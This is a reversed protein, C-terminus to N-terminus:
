FLRPHKSTWMFGGCCLSGSLYHSFLSCCAADDYVRIKCPFRLEVLIKDHLVDIYLHCILTLVTPTVSTWCITLICCTASVSIMLKTEIKCSVILQINYHTLNSWALTARPRHSAVLTFVSSLKCFLTHLFKADWPNKLYYYIICTTYLKNYVLIDPSISLWCEAISGFILIQM